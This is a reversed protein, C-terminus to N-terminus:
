SLRIHGPGLRVAHGQRYPLHDDAQNRDNEGAVNQDAAHRFQCLLQLNRIHDNSRRKNCASSGQRFKGDADRGVVRSEKFVVAMPKGVNETTVNRMRRAGKSDLNIFVAPQGSRQDFGSSADTIQNGTIIVRKKLLIPRGDERVKYLRAGPPVKGEAADMVDHETDVLRYFDYEFHRIVTGNMDMIYIRSLFNQHATFVMIDDAQALAALLLVWLFVMRRCFPKM